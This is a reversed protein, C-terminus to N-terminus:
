HSLIDYLEEYNLIRLLNNNRHYSINSKTLHFQGEGTNGKHQKNSYGPQNSIDASTIKYIEIIDSFFLGYYLIDFEKPKVQQINSDFRYLEAEDSRMIRNSTNANYCQEIVNQETITEKNYKLATSFKIEIKEGSIPDLKDYFRSDADSLKYLRKIMIEAVTGFRTTRLGFIGTKFKDIDPKSM